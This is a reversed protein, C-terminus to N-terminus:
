GKVEEFNKNWFNRKEHEKEATFVRTEDFSKSIQIFISIWLYATDRNLNKTM